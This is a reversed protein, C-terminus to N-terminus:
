PHLLGRVREIDADLTQLRPEGGRGQEQRARLLLRLAQEYDSNRELCAAMGYSSVAQYPWRILALEHRQAENWAREFEALAAVHDGRLQLNRARTYVLHANVRDATGAAAAELEAWALGLLQGCIQDTMPRHSVPRSWESHVIDQAGEDFGLATLLAASEASMGTGPEADARLEALLREVSTQYHEGLYQHVFVDDVKQSAGYWLSRPDCWEDLYTRANWAWCSFLVGLSLLALRRKLVPLRESFVGWALLLVLPVSPFFLYRDSVPYAFRLVQSPVLAVLIWLCLAQEWRSGERSASKRFDLVTSVVVLLALAFWFLEYWRVGGAGLDPRFIVYEGFGTLLWLFEGLVAILGIADLERFPPPQAGMVRLAFFISVLGYPVKDLLLGWGRRREVLLDFLLFVGPLVVVSLKGAIALAFLGVSALYWARSHRRRGELYAILCPLAFFTSVLDKRSAIWAVAEVHAPHVVFLLGAAWAVTRRKFLYWALVYVWAACLGAWIHSSLHFGRPDDGVLAWDFMYSYLHVPSYNSFYPETAIQKVNDLTLAQIQANHPVYSEDDIRFWGIDLAPSYFALTLAVLVACAFAHAVWRGRVASSPARPASGSREAPAEGGTEVGRPDVDHDDCM